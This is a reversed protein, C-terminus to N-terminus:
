YIRDTRMFHDLMAAGDGDWGLLCAVTWKTMRIGLDTAEKLGTLWGHDLLRFGDADIVATAHLGPRAIWFTPNKNDFLMGNNRWGMPVLIQDWSCQALAAALMKTEHPFDDAYEGGLLEVALAERELHYDAGLRDALLVTDASMEDRWGFLVIGDTGPLRYSTSALSVAGVDPLWDCLGARQASQQMWRRFARQSDTGIHKPSAEEMRWWLRARTVVGSDHFMGTVLTPRHDVAAEGPANEWHELGVIFDRLPDEAVTPFDVWYGPSSLRAQRRTEDTLPGTFGGVLWAPCLVARGHLNAVLSKLSTDSLAGTWEALTRHISAPEKRSNMGSITIRLSDAAGPEEFWARLFQTAMAADYEKVMTM